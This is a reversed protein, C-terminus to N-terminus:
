PTEKVFRRTAADPDIIVRFGVNYVKRWAPYSLRFASRSRKPRDYWSGGRVVKRGIDTVDNRGDGSKYPYPKYTSRTWEWVNGHMDHLGWPNPLYAGVNTAVLEEDDFRADRPVLDPSFQNRTDYVLEQITFDAMNAFASFDADLDGYHLPTDTGARCAWEWQAETPLSVKQGIKESLWRCFAAAEKWSVRVVPQDPGNLDWGLDWENFMWSGKHEYKSDHSPDFKAYLANTVEFKSMWFARDIKVAALPQEDQNGNRDGMVFRGAPVRVMELELNDDLDIVKRVPGASEQLRKAQDAAFPWDYLRPVEIKRKHM